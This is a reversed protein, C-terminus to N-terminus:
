NLEKELQKRVEERYQPPVLELPDAPKIPFKWGMTGAAKIIATLLKYLRYRKLASYYEIQEISIGLSESLKQQIDKCRRDIEKQQAPSPFNFKENWDGEGMKDVQNVGIVLRGKLNGMIQVIEKLIEQDATSARLNAQLVYLVVDASPLVEKYIEKYNKDLEIDEGLGPLDIVSLQGGEPLKITNHSAKTTGTSTHSVTENLNFLSNVTSSKGVGAQGIIAVKPPKASEKNVADMFISFDKEGLLTRLKHRADDNNNLSPEKIEASKNDSSTKKGFLVEWLDQFFQIVM